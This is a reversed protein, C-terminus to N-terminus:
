SGPEETVWTQRGTKRLLSLNQELNSVPVCDQRFHQTDYLCNHFDAASPASEKKPWWLLFICSFLTSHVNFVIGKATWWKWLSTSGHITNGISRQKSLSILWWITSFINKLDQLSCLSVEGIIESSVAQKISKNHLKFRLFCVFDFASIGTTLFVSNMLLLPFVFSFSSKRPSVGKLLFCWGCLVADWILCINGPSTKPNAWTYYATFFLYSFLM